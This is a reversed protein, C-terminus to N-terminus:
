HPQEEEEGAGEYGVLSEASGGGVHQTFFRDIDISVPRGEVAIQVDPNNVPSDTTADNGSADCIYARNSDSTGLIAFIDPRKEILHSAVQRLEEADAGPLHESIISIGGGVSEANKILKEERSRALEDKL